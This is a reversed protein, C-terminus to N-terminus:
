YIGLKRFRQDGLLLNDVPRQVNLRGDLRKGLDVLILQNMLQDQGVEGWLLDVGDVLSQSVQGVVVLIVGPILVPHPKRFDVYLYPM